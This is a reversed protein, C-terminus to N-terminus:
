VRKRREVDLITLDDAVVAVLREDAVDLRVEIRVPDTDTVTVALNRYFEAAWLSRRRIDVGHDHYCSITTPHTLLLAFAPVWLQAGCRDCQNRFSPQDDDFETGVSWSLRAYCFPCVGEVARELTQRTRLWFLEVVEDLSREDVAGPPLPHRFEHGNPCRVDLLGTDYEATLTADCVPCPDPLDTPGMRRQEGYVGVSVAAVVQMGTATIRYGDDTQTVFRGTLQNLHYNFNGSDPSGVARRLDAFGIVPDDPYDRVRRALARLIDLRLPESLVDFGDHATDDDRPDLLDRETM